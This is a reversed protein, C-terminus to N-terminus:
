RVDVVVSVKERKGGATKVAGKVLYTGRDVPRGDADTLDWSGVVRKNNINVGVANDSVDIKRVVNGAVDYIM